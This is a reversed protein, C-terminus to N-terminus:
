TAGKDREPGDRTSLSESNSQNEDDEPPMLVNGNGDTPPQWQPGHKLRMIAEYIKQHGSPEEKVQAAYPDLRINVSSWGQM